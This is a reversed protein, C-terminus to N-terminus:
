LKLFAKMEGSATMDKVYAVLGNTKFFSIPQFPKNEKALEKKEKECIMELLKWADNYRNWITSLGSIEARADIGRDHGARRGIVKQFSNDTVADKIEDPQLDFLLDLVFFYFGSSQEDYKQDACIQQVHQRVVSFDQLSATKM